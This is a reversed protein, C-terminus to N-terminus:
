PTRKWPGDTSPLSEARRLGGQNELCGALGALDRRVLGETEPMGFVVELLVSQALISVVIGAVGQPDVSEEAWGELKWKRVLSAIRRTTRLLERRYPTVCGLDGNLAGFLALKLIAPDRVFTSRFTRAVAFLAERPPLKSHNRPWQEPTRDGAKWVVAKRLAKMTPYYRFLLAPSIRAADAIDQARTGLFGRLALTSRAAELISTRRERRLM